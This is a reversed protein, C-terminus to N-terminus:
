RITPVETILLADDSYGCEPCKYCGILELNEATIVEVHFQCIRARGFPQTKIAIGPVMEVTCRECIM